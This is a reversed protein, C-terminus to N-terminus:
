LSEGQRAAVDGITCITVEYEGNIAKNLSHSRSLGAM